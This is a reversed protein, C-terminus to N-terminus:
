GSVRGHGAMEEATRETGGHSMRGDICTSIVMVSALIKELGGM